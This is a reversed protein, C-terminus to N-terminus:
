RHNLLNCNALMSFKGTILKVANITISATIFFIKNLRVFKGESSEKLEKGEKALSQLKLIKRKKRCFFKHKTHWITVDNFVFRFTKHWPSLQSLLDQM